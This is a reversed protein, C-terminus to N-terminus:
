DMPEFGKLIFDYADLTKEYQVVFESLYRTSQGLTELLPAEMNFNQRKLLIERTISHGKGTEIATAAIM